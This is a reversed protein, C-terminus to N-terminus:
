ILTPDLELDEIVTAATDSFTQFQHHIRFVAQWVTSQIVWLPFIEKIEDSPSELMSFSVSLLSSLPRRQQEPPTRSLRVLWRAGLFLIQSFRWKPLTTPQHPTFWCIIMWKESANMRGLTREEILRKRWIMWPSFRYHPMSNFSNHVGFLLSSRQRRKQRNIRRFIWAM